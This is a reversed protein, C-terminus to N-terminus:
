GAGRPRRRSATACASAGPGRARRRPARASRSRGGPPRTRGSAVWAGARRSTRILRVARIWGRGRGPVGTPRVGHAPAASPERREQGQSRDQSDVAEGVVLEPDVLVARPPRDGAFGPAVAPPAHELDVTLRGEVVQHGAQADIEQPDSRSGQPERGQGGPEPQQRQGMGEGQADEAITADSQEAHGGEGHVVPQDVVRLLRAGVGQREQAGRSGEVGVRDQELAASATRPEAVDRGRREGPVGVVQEADDHHHLREM